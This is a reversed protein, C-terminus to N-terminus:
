SMNDRIKRVDMQCYEQRFTDPIATGATDVQPTGTDNNRLLFLQATQVPAIPQDIEMVVKIRISVTESGEGDIPEGSTPDLASLSFLCQKTNVMFPRITASSFTKQLNCSFVQKWKTDFQPLVNTVQTNTALASPLATVGLTSNTFGPTQVNVTYMAVANNFSEQGTTVDIGRRPLAWVKLTRVRCFTLEQGTTGSLNNNFLNQNCEWWYNTVGGTTGTTFDFFDTLTVAVEHKNTVSGTLSRPVRAKRGRRPASKRPM